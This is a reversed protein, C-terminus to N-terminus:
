NEESDSEESDGSAAADAAAAAVAVAAAASIMAIESSSAARRRAAAAEEWEQRVRFTLIAFNQEGDTFSDVPEWSDHAPSWGAWRVLYTDNASNYALVQEVEWYPTAPRDEAKSESDSHESSASMSTRPWEDAISDGDRDYEPGERRELRRPSGQFHLQGVMVAVRADQQVRYRYGLARAIEQVTAM